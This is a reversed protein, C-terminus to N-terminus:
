YCFLDEANEQEEMCIIGIMSTNPFPCAGSSEAPYCVLGRIIRDPLSANCHARTLHPVALLTMLPVLGNGKTYSKPGNHRIKFLITSSLTFNCLYYLVKAAKFSILNNTSINFIEFVLKRL